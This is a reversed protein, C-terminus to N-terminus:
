YTLEFKFPQQVLQPVRLGGIEAPRYRAGSVFLRVSEVFAPDTARLTKFTGPRMRGTTDVIFQALVEGQVNMAKLETPYRPGMVSPLPVVPKEVQFEFYVRDRPLPVIYENQAFETPGVRVPASAFTVGASVTFEVRYQGAAPATLYFLGGDDTKATAVAVGSDPLLAVTVRRLPLRTSQDVARGGITQARAAAAPMVLLAALTLRAPLRPRLPM